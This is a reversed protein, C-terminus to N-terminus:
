ASPAHLHLWPRFDRVLFYSQTRDALTVNEIAGTPGLNGNNRVVLAALPIYDGYLDEATANDFFDTECEDSTGFDAGNEWLNLSALGGSLDARIVISRYYESFAFASVSALDYITDNLQRFKGQGTDSEYWWFYGSHVQVIRSAPQTPSCWGWWNARMWDTSTTFDNAQELKKIRREYSRLTNLIERLVQDIDNM